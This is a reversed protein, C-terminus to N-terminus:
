IKINKLLETYKNIVNNSRFDDPLLNNKNKIIIKNKIIKLLIQTLETKNNFIHGNVGDVVLNESIKKRIIVPLGLFLSEIVSRSQGESFSPQILYDNEILFNFPNQVFGHFNYNNHNLSNEAYSSVNHMNPADGLFNIVFENTVNSIKSFIDILEFFGKNKTLSGLFVFNIKSNNLNTALNRNFKINKEDIFNNIKMVNNFKKSYHKLSPENMVILLNSKCILFNHVFSILKGLFRGYKLPYLEYLTGRLSSILYGIKYYFLRCILDSSFGYSICISKPNNSFYHSFKLLIKIFNPNYFSSFTVNESLKYRLQLDKKFSIVTIDFKESLNNALIILAKVPSQNTLSPIILTIKSKHL